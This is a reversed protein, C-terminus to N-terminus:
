EVTVSKALNRPMDIERWLIYATFYAFLQLAVSVTFLAIYPHTRPVEIVDDYEEKLADGQSIIGIVKGCRAKIEQLTSINKKYLFHDPNILISLFNEDILSLPGHKLEWSPYAESHIYSIEKCKLSGEMAIPYWINRGLFFINKYCAYKHSLKEIAEKQNLVDEIYRELSELQALLEIYESYNGSKKLSFFLAMILLNLMQGIYTKTAAVGVEKWCHTYMGQGCLRAISSGVVNVIGFVNGGKEKIMKACHLTDATEWSQSIFIYLTRPSLFVRKYKYESSIYAHAEINALNEFFFAGVIGAHYSTGSAIIEIRDITPVPLNSLTTSVIAKNQFDIRWALTNQIIRPIEFIEKLMFHDYTGKGEEELTLDVRYEQKYIEENWAFIRYGEANCVVMENEDLPFYQDAIWALAQIDSSLFVGDKGKGVILPSWLKLWVIEWPREVDIIVFAYAGVVMKQIAHLTELMSNQFFCEVLNVFVETDTDSYFSYGKKQLYEKLEKYNEIIGNHVVYFRGSKSVHPHTNERTVNGHTAWRTHGMWACFHYTTSCVDQWVANSLM